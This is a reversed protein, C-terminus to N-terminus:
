RQIKSHKKSMEAVKETEELEEEVIKSEVIIPTEKAGAIVEKLKDKKEQAVGISNDFYNALNELIEIIKNQREELKAVEGKIVEVAYENVKKLESEVLPQINHTFSIKKVQEVGKDTAMNAIKEVNIRNIVKAFGGKLCAYIIASIIGTLTVGSLATAVWFWVQNIINEM